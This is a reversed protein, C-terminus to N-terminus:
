GLIGHIARLVGGFGGAFAKWRRPTARLRATGDDTQM